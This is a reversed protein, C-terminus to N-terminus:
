VVAGGKALRRFPTQARKQLSFACKKYPYEGEAEGTRRLARRGALVKISGVAFKQAAVDVRELKVGKEFGAMQM